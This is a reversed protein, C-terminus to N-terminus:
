NRPLEDGELFNVWYSDTRPHEFEVIYKNYFDLAGYLVGADDYGHIIVSDVNVKIYFEEALSLEASSNEKIYTHNEKTGVYICKYESFDIGQGYKLCVPYRHTYELLTKSLEEIARKQVESIPDGFIIAFQKM